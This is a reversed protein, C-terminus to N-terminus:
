TIIIEHRHALARKRIQALSVPHVPLILDARDTAADIAPGKEGIDAEAESAQRHARHQM